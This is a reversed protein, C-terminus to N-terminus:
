RQSAFTTTTQTNGALTHYAVQLSWYGTGATNADFFLDGDKGIVAPNIFSTDDIINVFGLGQLDPDWYWGSYKSHIGGSIFRNRYLEGEPLAYLTDQSADSSDIRKFGTAGPAARWIGVTGRNEFIAGNTSVAIEFPPVTSLRAWGTTPSWRWTGSQGLAIHVKFLGVMDGAADTQLIDPRNATLLSWGATPTWRWTGVAGAIDFRGFFADSDSVAMLNVDLSSLKMWGSTSWRWVGNSNFDGYLVGTATVQFQGATLSSLKMWSASSASWRWLGNSFQGYVDGGDDVDLQSAQLNSIHAWGTSTDFRWVGDAYNGAMTSPVLRDELTELGPRTTHRPGLGILTHVLM